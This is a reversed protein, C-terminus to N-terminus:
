AIKGYYKYIKKHCDLCVLTSIKSKIIAFEEVYGAYNCVYCHLPCFVWNKWINSAQNWEKCVKCTNSDCAELIGYKDEEGNEGNELKIDARYRGM